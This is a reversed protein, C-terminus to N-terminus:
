RGARGLDQAASPLKRADRSMELCSVLDTYSSVGGMTAEAICHTKDGSSFTSWQKIMDERDDQQGKMCQEFTGADLGELLSSSSTLGRCLPAVDLIPYGDSRAASSSVTLANMGVLAVVAAFYMM